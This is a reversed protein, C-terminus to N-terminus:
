MMYWSRVPRRISQQIGLGSHRPNRERGLHKYFYEAARSLFTAGLLWQFTGSDALGACPGWLM